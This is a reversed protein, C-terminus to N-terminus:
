EQGGILPLFVSPNVTITVDATATQTNPSEVDKVRLHIELVGERESPNAPAAFEITRGSGILNADDVSGVFWDYAFTGDAGTGLAFDFDGAGLEQLTQSADAATLTLTTGANVPGSPTVSVIQAYPRMYIESAPVYVYEDHTDGSNRETMRVLFEYVPVLEAQGVGPAEEWYAVTSSLIERNEVDLPVDNLAVRDPLALYLERLQSEPRIDVMLMQGTAANVETQVERWGGQMGVPTTQLKSAAGVEAAVPVYVKQKAGPGVVSFEFQEVGAATVIDVNLRRSYIVNWVLASEDVQEIGDAGAAEPTGPDSTMESSITDSIVQNFVAGTGLLQNQRLFTDAIRRADDSNIFNPSAATVALAAEAQSQTWLEALDTYTFLGSREDLELSRSIVTRVRFPDDRNLAASRVTATIPAGLLIESLREEDRTADDLSYPAVRYVPMQSQLKEVPVQIATETGCYHTQYWWDTDYSDACVIGSQPRDNLCALENIITRTVRGRQAVDCARYWAQPVTYNLALYRGFHYAQTSAPNNYASANTVFGLILHQGNMCSAWRNLSPIGANPFINQAPINDFSGRLVQCSTLALWENDGDGWARNCDAPTLTSDNFNPNAFTFGSHFGHGVYFQLDVADIYYNNTGGLDHRKFDREWASAENFSYNVKWNPLPALWFAMGTREAATAAPLDGATGHIGIEWPGGDDATIAEASTPEHAGSPEAAYAPTLWLTTMVATAVVTCVFSRAKRWQEGASM